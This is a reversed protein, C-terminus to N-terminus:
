KYNACKYYHALLSEDSKVLLPAKCYPCSVHNRKERGMVMWKDHASNNGGIEKISPAKAKLNSKNAGVSSKKAENVTHDAQPKSIIPAEIEAVKKLRKHKITENEKTEQKRINKHIEPSKLKEIQVPKGFQVKPIALNDFARKFMSKLDTSKNPAKM